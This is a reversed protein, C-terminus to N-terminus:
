KKRPKVELFIKEVESNLRYNVFIDVCRVIFEILDLSLSVDYLFRISIVFPSVLLKFPLSFFNIMLIDDSLASVWKRHTLTLKANTESSTM